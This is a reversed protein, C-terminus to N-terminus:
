PATTATHPLNQDCRQRENRTTRTALHKRRNGKPRSPQQVVCEIGGASRASVGGCRLIRGSWPFRPTDRSAERRSIPSGLMRDARLREALGSCSLSSNSLQWRQQQAQELLVALIALLYSTM